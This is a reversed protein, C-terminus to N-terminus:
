NLANYGFHRCPRRTPSAKRRCKPYLGRGKRNMIITQSTASRGSGVRGVGVPDARPLELRRAAVLGAPADGVRGARDRRARRHDARWPVAPAEHRRGAPRVGAASAEASLSPAARRTSKPAVRKVAVRAHAYVRHNNRCLESEAHQAGPSLRNPRDNNGIRNISVLERGL